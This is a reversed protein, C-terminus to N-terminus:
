KKPKVTHVPDSLTPDKPQGKKKKKPKGGPKNTKSAPAAPKAQPGLNGAAAPVMAKERQVRDASLKDALQRERQATDRGQRQQEESRPDAADVHKGGACPTTSYSRGDPGCRYVTESGAQQAIANATILAAM